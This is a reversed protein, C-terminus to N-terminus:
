LTTPQLLSPALAYKVVGNELTSGAGSFGIILREKGVVEIWKRYGLPNNVMVLVNPTHLNESISSLAEDVQIKRALVM